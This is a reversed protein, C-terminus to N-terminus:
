SSRAVSEKERRLLLWAIVGAAFLLLSTIQAATLGLWHIRQDGRFFEIAFRGPPYILLYLALISGPRPKRFYVFFVVLYVFFNFGAEILQIPIRRAGEVFVAWHGHTPIGYCCGNLFCGVRGIAHGLPLASIALDALPLLPERRLRAFFALGAAAGIFGGYFVLGGRYIRIIDLPDVAFDRFNAAVYAIRAGVIGCIMMWFALESGFGPEREQRRAFFTWHAIAALFASAVMVGYWYIPWSFVYFCIPDM